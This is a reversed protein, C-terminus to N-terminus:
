LANSSADSNGVKWSRKEHYTSIRWWRTWWSSVVYNDPMISSQNRSLGGESRKAKKAADSMHKWMDPWVNDPRPITQKRTLRAKRECSYIKHRNDMCWIIRKRWGRELLWWGTKGVIGGIIKPSRALVSARNRSAGKWGFWAVEHLRWRAVQGLILCIEQDTSIGITM